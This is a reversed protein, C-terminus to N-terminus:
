SKNNGMIKLYFKDLIDILGLFKDIRAEKAKITIFNWRYPSLTIHHFNSTM